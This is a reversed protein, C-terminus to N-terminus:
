PVNEWSLNVLRVTESSAPVYHVGHRMALTKVASWIPIAGVDAHLLRYAQTIYEARSEPELESMVKVIIKDLDENIFPAMASQSYFVSMLAFAPEPTHAMPIPMVGVYEVTPDVNAKRLLELTRAGDLGRVDAKIGVALLNLTVAEATEKVGEFSGIWYYLPMSFGNPYGAEALMRRALDPDYRYPKLDRDYGLEGPSLAAYRRPVGYLVKEVISDADVAHAIALRVRPDAWPVSKNRNDFQVIVTPIVAVQVTKFGLDKIQQVSAYPTDVIIDAEGSRLMAIRAASDPVFLFRVRRIQPRRLPGEHYDDFAALDLYQGLKRGVYRYAGTGVPHATFQEEGVRDYYAKSAIPGVRTFFTADPASFTFRVTEEDVAEVGTVRRMWNRYQPSKETMREQSFVVDAATLPDGSHFIVERRLKFEIVRGADLVKWSRALNPVIPGGKPTLILPEFVNARNENGGLIPFVTSSDRTSTPDLTDPEQGAAIILPRGASETSLTPDTRTALFILAGVLVASVGISWLMRSTGRRM